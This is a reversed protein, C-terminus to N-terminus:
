RQREFKAWEILVAEPWVAIGCRGNKFDCAFRMGMADEYSEITNVIASALRDAREVEAKALKSRYYIRLWDRAAYVNDLQWETLAVDFAYEPLPLVKYASQFSQLANTYDKAKYYGEGFSYYATATWIDVGQAEAKFPLVVLAAVIITSALHRLAELSAKRKPDAKERWMQLQQKRVRIESLAKAIKKPDKTGMCYCYRKYQAKTMGLPEGTFADRLEIFNARRRDVLFAVVGTIAILSLFVAVALWM